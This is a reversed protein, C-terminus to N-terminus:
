AAAASSPPSAWRSTPWCTRRCRLTAGRGRRAPPAATRTPRQLSRRRPRARRVSIRLVLCGLLDSGDLSRTSPSARRRGPRRGVLEPETEHRGRERHRRHGARQHRPGRRRARGRVVDVPDRRVGGRELAEAFTTLAVLAISGAQGDGTTFRLAVARAPEDRVVEDVSTARRARRDPHPRRRAAARACGALTFAWEPSALVEDFQSMPSWATEHTRSRRGSRLTSGGSGALPRSRARDGATLGSGPPRLQQPPEVDGAAARDPLPQDPEHHARRFRTSSSGPTSASRTEDARWARVVKGTLDSRDRRHAGRRCRPLRGAARDDGPRACGSASM